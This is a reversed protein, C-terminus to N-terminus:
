ARTSNFAESVQADSVTWKQASTANATTTTGNRDVELLEIGNVQGSPM